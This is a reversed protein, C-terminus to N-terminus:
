NIMRELMGPQVSVGAVEPSIFIFYLFGNKKLFFLECSDNAPYNSNRGTKGCIYADVNETYSVIFNSLSNLYVVFREDSKKEINIGEGHVELYLKQVKHEGTRYLIDCDGSPIGDFSGYNNLGSVDEVVLDKLSKNAVSDIKFVQVHFSKDYTYEVLPNHQKTTTATGSEFYKRASDNFLEIYNQPDGKIVTTAYKSPFIRIYILFLVYLYYYQM